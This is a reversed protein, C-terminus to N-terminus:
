LPNYGNLFRGNKEVPTLDECLFFGGIEHEADFDCYECVQGILSYNYQCSPCRPFEENLEDDIDDFDENSFQCRCDLCIYLKYVPTFM